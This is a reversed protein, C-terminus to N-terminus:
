TLDLRYRTLDSMKERFRAGSAVNQEIHVAEILCELRGREISRTKGICNLEAALRDNERPGGSRPQEVVGVIAVARHERAVTEFADERRDHRGRAGVADVDDRM